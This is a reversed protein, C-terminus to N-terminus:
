PVDPPRPTSADLDAPVPTASSGRPLGVTVQLADPHLLRRAADDLEARGVNRWREVLWQDRDDPLDYFAAETLRDAWQRATERLFPQSGLLFNRAEDLEDQGVGDNCLRALEDRIASEVRAVQDVACGAYVAFRGADLGSGATTAVGVQYALGDRERIRTPLRGGLGSGAGLVVGLLDLLPRDPHNRPLTLHGACVHAQDGPPLDLTRRAGQQRTPRAQTRPPHAPTSEHDGLQDTIARRIAVEDIDGTVVVLTGYGSAQRHFDRAHAPGLSQLSALDGQLPRGYPHEPYLQQLFHQATRAEPQDRLSELEAAAQQALWRCRDPPMAPRYLLEGLWSVAQRWDHALADIALGIAEYGGFSELAMGRDEADRAITAWDRQDSGETLLRGAVLATGPHDEDRAGGRLWARIAVIPVGEVRRCRIALRPNPHPATSASMSAPVM